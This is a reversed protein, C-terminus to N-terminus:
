RGASAACSARRHVESTSGPWPSGTVSWARASRRASRRCSRRARCSRRGSRRRLRAGRVLDGLSIHPLTATVWAYRVSDSTSPWMSRRSSRPSARADLLRAADRPERSGVFWVVTALWIGILMAVYPPQLFPENWRPYVILAPIALALQLAAVGRWHGAILLFPVGWLVYNYSGNPNAAWVALYLLSAGTMVPLRRRRAIVAALLAAAGVILNQHRTFWNVLSGPELRDGFLFADTLSPDLLVSYGGVSPVGQNATLSARTTEFDAILWPLTVILPVALAPILLEPRPRWGAAGPRPDAAAAGATDQDRDAAGLLLGGDM